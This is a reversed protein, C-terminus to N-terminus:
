VKGGILVDLAESCMDNYLDFVVPDLVEVLTVETRPEEDPTCYHKMAHGGLVQGDDSWVITETEARKKGNARQIGDMTVKILNDFDPMCDKFPFPTSRKRIKSAPKTFYYDISCVIAKAFPEFGNMEAIKAIAIESIRFKERNSDENSRIYAIAKPPGSGRKGIWKICPAGAKIAQPEGDIVITFTKATPDTM